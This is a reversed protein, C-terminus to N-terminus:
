SPSVVEKGVAGMFKLRAPEFLCQFYKFVINMEQRIWVTSYFSLVFCFGTQM